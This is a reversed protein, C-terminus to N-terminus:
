TTRVVTTASGPISPLWHDPGPDQKIIFVNQAAFDVFNQNLETSAASILDNVSRHSLVDLWVTYKDQNYPTPADKEDYRIIAIEATADSRQEALARVVPAQNAVEAMPTKDVDIQVPQDMQVSLGSWDSRSMTLVSRGEVHEWYARFRPADATM